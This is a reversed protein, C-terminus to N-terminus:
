TTGRSLFSQLLMFGGAGVVLVLGIVIFWTAIRVLRVIQRLAFRLAIFGAAGGAITLPLFWWPWPLELLWVSVFYFIAGMIGGVVGDVVLSRFTMRLLYVVIFSLLGVTFVTNGFITLLITRLNLGEQNGVAATVGAFVGAGLIQYFGEPLKGRVGFYLARLLAAVPLLYQGGMRFIEALTKQDIAMNM